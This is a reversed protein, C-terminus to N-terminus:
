TSLDMFVEEPELHLYFEPAHADKSVAHRFQIGVHTKYPSKDAAFRTDRHIRFIARRPDTVFSRSIRELRPAIAQVFAVAPAKCYQEYAARHAEFWDRDNHAKLQKLFEFLEPTFSVTGAM